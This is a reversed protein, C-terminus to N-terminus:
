FKLAYGVSINFNRRIGLEVPDMGDVGPDISFKTFDNVYRLDAVLSGPGLPLGVEVGAVIGPIFKSAIDVDETFDGEEVVQGDMKATYEMKSKMKGLPISFNVGVLPTIVVPGASIDYTVILPIDMSLYSASGTAEVGIKMSAKEISSDASVKVGNNAFIGLELQVGLPTHFPMNYRGYIAGGGGVMVENKTDIDYGMTFLTKGDDTLTSGLNMGFTGKAGVTIQACVMSVTVATMVALAILKKM